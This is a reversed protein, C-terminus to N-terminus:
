RAPAAPQSVAESAAPAFFRALADLTADPQEAVLMHGCDPITVAACGAILLAALPILHRM